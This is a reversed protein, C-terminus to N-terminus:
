FRLVCFMPCDDSLFVLFEFMVYVLGWKCFSGLLVCFM